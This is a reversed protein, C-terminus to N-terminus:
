FKIEFEIQTDVDILCLGIHKQLHYNPMTIFYIRYFMYLNGNM